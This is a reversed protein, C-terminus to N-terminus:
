ISNFHLLSNTLTIIGINIILAALIITAVFPIKKDTPMEIMKPLGKNLLYISYIGFLQCVIILNHYNEFLAAAISAVIYATSSYVILQHINLKTNIGKYLKSIRISILSLIYISIFIVAIKELSNLLLTEIPKRFLPNFIFNGLISAIPLCILLFLLYKFYLTKIPRPNAKIDEWKQNPKRLIEECETILNKVKM